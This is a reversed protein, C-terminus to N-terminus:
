SRAAEAVQLRAVGGFKDFEDFEDFLCLAGRALVEDLIEAGAVM